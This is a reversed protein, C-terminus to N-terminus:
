REFVARWIASLSHTGGRIGAGCIPCASSDAMNMHLLLDKLPLSCRALRWLLVQVKSPVKVGWLTSWEKPVAQRDSAGASRALSKRHALMRYASRVSFVGHKEFHCACFDQQQRTSLPISSILNVYLPTFFEMLKVRDWSASTSDILESVLQPPNPQSSPV